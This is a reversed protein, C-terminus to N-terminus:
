DPPHLKPVWHTLVLSKLSKRPPHLKRRPPRSTTQVARKPSWWGRTRRSPSGGEEIVIQRKELLNNMATELQALRLGRALVHQHVAKPGYNTGKSPSLRIGLADKLALVELFVREAHSVAVKAMLPGIDPPAVFVGDEWRLSFSTGSAAYNSKKTTLTREAPDADEGGPRDLYLRSRVSNNWATSGSSGSGSTIGMQSPHSLLLVACDCDFALRRLMNVFQRVQVRKIEDGGFLDASTDLVVLDPAFRAAVAQLQLWVPTPKMNGDRGPVSLTTDRDAMPVILFKGRLDKPSRDHHELIRLIRRHFEGPEDEAGLYLM